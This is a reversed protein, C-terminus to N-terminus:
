YWGYYPDYGPDYYSWFGTAGENGILANTSANSLHVTFYKNDAYTPDLIDVSITKTTEGPAFTLTGSAAVYDLGAIATGDATAFSVTVAQDYAASLSITFTFPSYDGYNYADAVSIRPEDDIITGVGVAKSIASYSNPSSVNVFLTRDPEPVRDGNVLVTISQSTQGPAFTLTGSAATYDSGASASGDATAYSVTVPLDYAASLSVTFTFPTAGSNGELASVDGISIRPEDDVITVVAQDRAIKAGKANTLKVFFTENPEPLRDGIVPVLITKSVQDKTFTLTGSVANYDSGAKPTGDATKYNVTVSNGHPETLSVAILANHNGVNGELVSIDGITLVAAPTCRDELAELRLRSAPRRTPRRGSSTSNRSKFFKQIWMPFEKTLAIAVFDHMEPRHPSPR